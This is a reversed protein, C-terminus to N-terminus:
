NNFSDAFDGILVYFVIAITVIGLGLYILGSKLNGIDKKILAKILCYLGYGLFAIAFLISIIIFVSM